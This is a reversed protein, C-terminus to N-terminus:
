VEAAAAAAATAAALKDIISSKEIKRNQTKL